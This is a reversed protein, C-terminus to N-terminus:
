DPRFPIRRRKAGDVYRYWGRRAAIVIDRQFASALIHPLRRWFHQREM